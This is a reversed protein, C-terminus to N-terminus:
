CFSTKTFTKQPNRKIEKELIKYTPSPCFGRIRFIIWLAYKCKIEKRHYPINLGYIFKLFLFHKLFFKCRVFVISGGGFFFLMRLYIDSVFDQNKRVTMEM